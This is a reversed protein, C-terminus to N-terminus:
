QGKSNQKAKILALKGGAQVQEKEIRSLNLNVAINTGKTKNIVTLHEKLDDVKIELEDDITINDYDKKDVFTLPLIGFNVLNALHIRAFSKAIIAKIGLYKPALAAHERSSGQGYNEGGVIFGGNNQEARSAFTKDVYCFTHTSIQPINSRLSMIESGGPIIDDTTINDGTKLLVKGQLKKPLTTFNPLPKINPGRSIEKNTCQSPQIFMADNLIFKEPMIIQPFKGLKRPDVIKGNLAAATATEPSVLYVQADKTGSRGKFNRNFTRLSVAGTPPSQGIGICPGCANELIRAGSQILPELEGTTALNEMVQRSGASVTLSTNEHVKKGRLLASVTKLDGLSSNTCSGICVQDVPIGEVESVKKVSDPSHPLAILPELTSLDIEINEDYVADQDAKLEEWMMGRHQAELFVRTNKDSPFISTTAGTEAGMNTITGREPVSLTEVGPGYYELIKNVGGKVTLIKLVQLIIDKASVFAQLRGTLKIGVIKPMELYFPEGAMAAAVDLGGAGIAIMGMAGATPTHSDSGLLTRGPRAFRELYLQHCIGNGPRSFIIGFKAAVDQLYRHDDANRYDNQLMNHDVFSLSLETKVKSVGLSEFELYAMTGTSDQTLTHDIKLAIEEGAVLKGEVLHNAIIKQALTLKPM